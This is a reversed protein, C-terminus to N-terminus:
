APAFTCVRACTAVSPFFPRLAVSALEGQSPSKYENHVASLKECLVAGLPRSDGRTAGFAENELGNSTTSAVM